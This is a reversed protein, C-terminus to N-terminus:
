SHAHTISTHLLQTSHSLKHATATHWHCTHAHTISTHMATHMHHTHTHTISTHLIPFIRSCELYTHPMRIQNVEELDWRIEAQLNNADQDRNGPGPACLCSDARCSFVAATLGRTRQVESPSLTQLARAKSSLLEACQLLWAGRASHISLHESM